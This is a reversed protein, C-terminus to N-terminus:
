GQVHEDDGRGRHFHRPQAAAAVARMLDLQQHRTHAHDRGCCVDGPCEGPLVVIERQVEPQAAAELGNRFREGTDLPALVLRAGAVVLRAVALRAPPAQEKRDFLRLVVLVLIAAAPACLINITPGGPVPM